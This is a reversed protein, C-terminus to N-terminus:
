AIKYYIRTFDSLRRSLGPVSGMNLKCEGRGEEIRGGHWSDRAYNCGTIGMMDGLAAVVMSRDKKVIFIILSIQLQESFIGFLKGQLYPSVAQHIVM